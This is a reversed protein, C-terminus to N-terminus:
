RTRNKQVSLCSSLGLPLAKGLSWIVINKRKGNSVPGRRICPFYVKLHLGFATQAFLNSKLLLSPLHKTSPLIEWCPRTAFICGSVIHLLPTNWVIRAVPNEEQGKRKREKSSWETSRAEKDGEPTGSEPPGRPLHPTLRSLRVFWGAPLPQSTSVSNPPLTCDAQSVVRGPALRGPRRRDAEGEPRGAGGGVRGPGARVGGGGRGRDAEQSTSRQSQHDM